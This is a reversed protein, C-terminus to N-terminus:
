DRYVQDLNLRGGEEAPQLMPGSVGNPSVDVEVLESTIGTVGTVDPFLYFISSFPNGSGPLAAKLAFVLQLVRRGNSTGFNATVACTVSLSM